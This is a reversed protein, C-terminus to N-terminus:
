VQNFQQINGGLVLKKLKLPAQIFLDITNVHTRWKSGQHGVCKHATDFIAEPGRLSIVRTRCVSHPHCMLCLAWRRFLLIMGKQESRSGDM